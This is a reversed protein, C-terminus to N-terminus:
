KCYKLYLTLFGSLAVSFAIIINIIWMLNDKKQWFLQKKIYKIKLKEYFNLHIFYTKRNGIPLTNINTFNLEKYLDNFEIIANLKETEDIKKIIRTFYISYVAPKIKLWSSTNGKKLQEFYIKDSSVLIIEDKFQIFGASFVKPNNDEKNESLYFYKKIM